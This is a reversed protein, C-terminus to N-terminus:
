RLSTCRMFVDGRITKDTFVSFMNSIVLNLTDRETLPVDLNVVSTRREEYFPAVPRGDQFNQWDPNNLLLVDFDRNRGEVGVLRGRLRCEPELFDDPVAFKVSRAQGAQVVFASEDFLPIVLPRLVGCGSSLVISTVLALVKSYKM